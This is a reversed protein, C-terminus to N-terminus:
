CPNQNRSPFFICLIIEPLSVYSCLFYLLLILFSTIPTIAPAKSITILPIRSSSAQASIQITTLLWDHILGPSFAGYSPAALPHGQGRQHTSFALPTSLCQIFLLTLIILPSLFSLSHQVRLIHSLPYPNEKHAFPLPSLPKPAPSHCDLKQKYFIGHSHYLTSCLSCSPFCLPHQCLPSPPSKAM